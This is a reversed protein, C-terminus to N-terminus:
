EENELKSMKRIRKGTMELDHKELEALARKLYTPDEKYTHIWENIIRDLREEETECCYCNCYECM